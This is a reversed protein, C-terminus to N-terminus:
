FKKNCIKLIENAALTSCNGDFKGIHKQIYNQYNNKLVVKELSTQIKSGLDNVNSSLTMISEDFYINTKDIEPTRIFVVKKNLLVSELLTTSQGYSVIIDYESLLTIFNEKQHLTINLKNKDLLERYDKDSSMSPHIKLSIKHKGTKLISKIGNIILDDEKKKSWIGHEHLSSTCFLIRPELNEINISNNQKKFFLDDFYPNGCLFITQPAFGATKLDDVLEPTSCLNLDGGAIPHVPNAESSFTQARPFFSMFRLVDLTSYKMKKLTRLLFRYESVLYSLMKFTRPKEGKDVNAFGENAFTTRVRAKFWSFRSEGKLHTVFHSTVVPIKKYKGALAFVISQCTLDGDFLILDPNTEDLIELANNYNDYYIIEYEDTKQHEIKDAQFIVWIPKVNFKECIKQMINEYQVIEIGHSFPPRMNPILITLDQM